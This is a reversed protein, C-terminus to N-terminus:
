EEEGGSSEMEEDEASFTVAEMIEHHQKGDKMGAKLVPRVALNGDEDWSEELSISLSASVPPPKRKSETM